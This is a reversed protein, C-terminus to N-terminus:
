DHHQVEAQREADHGAADTTAAQRRWTELIRFFGTVNEAIQRADDASLERQARPQWVTITRQTIDLESRNPMRLDLGSRLHAAAGM